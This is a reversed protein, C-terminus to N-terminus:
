LVVHHSARLGAVYSLFLELLFTPLFSLALRATHCGTSVGERFLQPWVKLQLSLWVDGWGEVVGSPTPNPLLLLIGSTYSRNSRCAELLPVQVVQLVPLLVRLASAGWCGRARPLCLRCAGSGAAHHAAVM